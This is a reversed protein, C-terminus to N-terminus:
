CLSWVLDWALRLETIFGQSLFLCVFLCFCSLYILEQHSRFLDTLSNERLNKGDTRPSETETHVCKLPTKKKDQRTGPTPCPCVLGLNGPHTRQVGARSFTATHLVLRWLCLCPIRLIVLTCVQACSSWSPQRVTLRGTNVSARPPHKGV